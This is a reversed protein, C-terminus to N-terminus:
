REGRLSTACRFGYAHSRTGPDDGYRRTARVRSPFIGNFAGGRVVRRTGLM